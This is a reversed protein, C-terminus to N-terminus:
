SQRGKLQYVSPTHRGDLAALAQHALNVDRRDNDLLEAARAIEERRLTIRAELFSIRLAYFLRFLLKM